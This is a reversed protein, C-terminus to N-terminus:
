SPSVRNCLEEVLSLFEKEGGQLDPAFTPLAKLRKQVDNENHRRFSAPSVLRSAHFEPYLKSALEMRRSVLDTTLLANFLGKLVIEELEGREQDTGQSIVRRLEEVIVSVPPDSPKLMYVCLDKTLNHMFFGCLRSERPVKEVAAALWGPRNRESESVTNFAEEAWLAPFLPWLNNERLFDMCDAKTPFLHNIMFASKHIVSVGDATSRASSQIEGLCQAFLKVIHKRSGERLEPAKLINSFNLVGEAALLALLSALRASAKPDDTCLDEVDRILPILGAEVDAHRLKDRRILVRLVQILNPRDKVPAEVAYMMGVYNTLVEYLPEQSPPIEDLCEVLEKEDKNSMFEKVTGTIKLLLKETDIGSTAAPQSVPADMGSRSPIPQQSSRADRFSDNAGGRPLQGSFSPRQSGSMGGPGLRDSSSGGASSGQWGGRSDRTDRTDRADMRQDRGAGAGSSGRVDQTNSRSGGAGRDGGRADRPDRSDRTDRDRASPMPNRQPLGRSIGGGGSMSSRGKAAEEDAANQRIENLTKATEEKRRPVWRNRRLDILDSFMFRIRSSIKTNKSLKDILEFYQEMKAKSKGQELTKGITNLLKILSELDEEDMKNNKFKFGGATGATQEEINLLKQVCKHIINEKLMQQKYLEGIFQINGLMRRKMKMRKETFEQQKLAREEPDSCHSAKFAAEEKVLEEYIDVKEFENQCLNLLITRVETKKKGVKEADEQSGSAEMSMDYQKKGEEETMFVTYFDGGERPPPVVEGEEKEDGAVPPLARLVKIFKKDKILLRIVEMDCPRPIPRVDTSDNTAAAICAEETEYPGMVETDVGVDAIWNWQNADTNHVTKIFNWGSSMTHLRVCLGAYMDAFFNEDIAKDFVQEVLAKLMALSDMPIDLLQQSLRDFKEKTMKNLISKVLKAMKILPSGDKVPTWRNEALNLLPKDDAGYMDQISPPREFGGSRGGQAASPRAGGPREQQQQQAQPPPPPLKQGRSWSSGGGQGAGAGAAAGVTGAPRYGGGGAGAGYSGGASGGAGGARDFGGSSGQRYGSGMEKGGGGMSSRGGSGQSLDIIDFSPLGEPKDSVGSFRKLEAVTYVIRGLGDVSGVKEDASPVPPGPKSAGVGGVQPAFGTADMTLGPAPGLPKVGGIMSGLRPGSGGPRLSGMSSAVAAPQQSQAAAAVQAASKLQTGRGWMEGEAPATASPTPRLPPQAVEEVQEVVSAKAPAPSAVKPPKPSKSRPRPSSTASKEAAQQKRAIEQAALAAVREREEAQAKAKEEAETKAKQKALAEAEEKEKAAKAVIEAEVRAKTEADAKAKAEREAIAKAEREAAAKAEREAVVKAELEAAVRADDERKLKKAKEEEEHLKKLRDAEAAQEKAALEKAAAANAKTPSPESAAQGEDGGGFSGFSFEVDGDSPTEATQAVTIPAPSARIEQPVPAPASVVAPAPAPPTALRQAAPIFVPPSKKGSLVAAQVTEFLENGGNRKTVVPPPPLAPSTSSASSPQKQIQESGRTDVTIKAGTVPHIIELPRRTTTAPPVYPMIPQMMQMGGPGVSMVGMPIGRPGQIIM